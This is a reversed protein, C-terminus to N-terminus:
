NYSVFSGLNAFSQTTDTENSDNLHYFLKGYNHKAISREILEIKCKTNLQSKLRTQIQTDDLGRRKLRELQQSLPADVVIVNNNVITLLNAEAIIAGDLIVTSKHKNDELAMEKRIRTLIPIRMMANLTNLADPDNFVLDGLKKRNIVRTEGLDFVDIIDQRLQIYVEETRTHLIDHAVKDLDIHHINLYSHRYQRNKLQDMIYSKGMGISGTLGVIRKKMFKLEMSQKVNLPVYTDLLGYNKCIEKAASSSVHSLENRSFITFTEIGRQQTAGVEHLLREYDFDQLNRVGKIVAKAGLEYATDVLLGTFSQVSVNPLHKVNHRILAIREELTFTYNKGINVGILVYVKDFLSAAREVVDLHGLTFPDFSGPYVCSKM